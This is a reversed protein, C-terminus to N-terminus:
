FGGAPRIERCRDALAALRGRRQMYLVLSNARARGSAGTIEETPVGLELALDDLEDHNFCADIKAALAAQTEIAPKATAAAQAERTQRATPTYEPELGARRLQAVLLGVGIYLEAVEARLFNTSIEEKDRQEELYEVRRKWMTMDAMQNRVYLLLAALGHLTAVLVAAAGLLFLSTDSM